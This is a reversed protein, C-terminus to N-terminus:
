NRKNQCLRHSRSWLLGLSGTAKCHNMLQATYALYSGSFSPHAECHKQEATKVVVGRGLGLKDPGAVTVFLKKLVKFSVRRWGLRCRLVVLQQLATSGGEWPLREEGGSLRGSIGGEPLGTGADETLLARRVSGTCEGSVPVVSM